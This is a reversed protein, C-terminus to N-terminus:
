AHKCCAARICDPNSCTCVMSSEYQFSAYSYNSFVNQLAQQFVKATTNSFPFADNGLLRFTVDAGQLITPNTAPAVAAYGTATSTSGSSSDNQLLTRHHLWLIGGIDASFHRAWANIRAHPTPAASVQPALAVLACCMCALLHRECIWLRM